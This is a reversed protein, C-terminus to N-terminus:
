YSYASEKCSHSWRGSPTCANRYLCARQLFPWAAYNIMNWLSEANGKYLVHEPRSQTMLAAMLSPIVESCPRM